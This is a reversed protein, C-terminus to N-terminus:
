RNGKESKRSVLLITVCILSAAILIYGLIRLLSGSEDKEEPMKEQSAEAEDKEGAAEPATATMTEEAEQVGMAEKKEPEDAASEPNAEMKGGVPEAMSMGAGLDAGMEEAMAADADWDADAAEGASAYLDASEATMMSNVPPVAEDDAASEAREDGAAAAAKMSVSEASSSEAAIGAAMQEPEAALLPAEEALEPLETATTLVPRSEVRTLHAADRGLLTGGLIFAAVAAISLGRRWSWSRRAAPNMELIKPNPEPVDMRPSKEAAAEDHLREAGGESRIAERWGRRFEEPMEPTEARMRDLARQLSLEARDQKQDDTM